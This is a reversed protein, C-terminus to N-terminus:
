PGEFGNGFLTGTGMLDFVTMGSYTNDVLQYTRQDPGFRTPVFRFLLDCGTSPHLTIPLAGCTGTSLHFPSPPLSPDSVQMNGIIWDVTGSNLLNLTLTASVAEVDVEGFHHSSPSVNALPGDGFGILDLTDPSSPANSDIYISDAALGPVTPSFSYHLACKLGPGLSFPPTPCIGTGPPPAFFPQSPMSIASITLPSTGVNTLETLLPGFTTGVPVFNFDLPNDSIDLAASNPANVRIMWTADDAGGYFENSVSDVPSQALAMANPDVPVGNDSFAVFSHFAAPYPIVDDTGDVDLSGVLVQSGYTVIAGAFFITGVPLVPYPTPFTFTALLNTGSNRVAGTKSAVVLADDPNGDQNPDAWLYATLLQGNSINTQALSGGFAIRVGTITEFGPQVVYRNLWAFSLDNGVYVVGIGSEKLGDDLRYEDIAVAAMPAVALSAGVILKGFTSM